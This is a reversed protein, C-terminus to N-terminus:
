FSLRFSLQLRRAAAAAVPSLFFPSSENGIMRTFNVQNFVNFADASLTVSVPRERGFRLRRSLRLDLTSRGPGALANRRIGAPREIAMGDHNVDRGTTWEYPQGTNMDLVAGLTIEAPM